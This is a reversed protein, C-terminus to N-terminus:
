EVVAEPNTSVTKITVDVKGARIGGGGPCGGTHVMVGVLAGPTVAPAGDDALYPLAVDPDSGLGVWFQDNVPDWVIRVRALKGKKVVGLEVPDGVEEPEECTAEECRVLAADVHFTKPDDSSGIVGLYAMHDGTRDGPGTSSGDNFSGLAIAAWM